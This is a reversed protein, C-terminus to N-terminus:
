LINCMGVGYGFIQKLLKVTVICGLGHSPLHLISMTINILMLAKYVETKMCVVYMVSSIMLNTWCTVSVEADKYILHGGTEWTMVNEVWLTVKLHVYLSLWPIQTQKHGCTPLVVTLMFQKLIVVQLLIIVDPLESSSFPLPLSLVLTCCMAFVFTSRKWLM